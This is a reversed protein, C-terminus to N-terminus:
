KARYIQGYLKKKPPPPPQPQLLFPNIGFSLINACTLRIERGGDEILSHCLSYKNGIRRYKNNKKKNNLLCFHHFRQM